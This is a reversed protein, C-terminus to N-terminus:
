CDRLTQSFFYCILFELGAEKGKGGDSKIRNGKLKNIDMGKQQAGRRGTAAGKVEGGRLM